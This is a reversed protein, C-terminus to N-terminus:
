AMRQFAAMFVKEQRYAIIRTICPMFDLDIKNEKVQIIIVNVFTIHPKKYKLSHQNNKSLSNPQSLLAAM